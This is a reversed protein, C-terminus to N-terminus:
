GVYAVLIFKKDVIEEHLEQFHKQCSLLGGLTGNILLIIVDFNKESNQLCFLFYFFSLIGNRDITDM